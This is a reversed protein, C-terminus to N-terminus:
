KTSNYCVAMIKDPFGSTGSTGSTGYNFSKTDTIGYYNMAGVVRDKKTWFQNYAEINAPSDYQLLINNSPAGTMEEVDYSYTVAEKGVNVSVGYLRNGTVTFIPGEEDLTAADEKLDVEIGSLNYHGSVSIDITGLPIVTKEAGVLLCLIYEVKRTGTYAYDDTAPAPDLYTFSPVFMKDDKINAMSTSYQLSYDRQQSHTITVKKYILCVVDVRSDGVKVHTLSDYDLIEFCVLARTATSGRKNDTTRTAQNTWTSIAM